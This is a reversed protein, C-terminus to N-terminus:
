RDLEQQPTSHHATTHQPTSDATILADKNTWRRCEIHHSCDLGGEPQPLLLAHSLLLLLLLLLLLVPSHWSHHRDQAIPTVPSDTLPKTM